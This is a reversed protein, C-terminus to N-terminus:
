GVWYELVAWLAGVLSLSVLAGWGCGTVFGRTYAKKAEARAEALRKQQEAILKKFQLAM